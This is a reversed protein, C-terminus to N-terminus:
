DYTEGKSELKDVVSQSSEQLEDDRCLRVHQKIIEKAVFLEDETLELDIM